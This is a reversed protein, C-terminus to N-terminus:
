YPTITYLLGAPILPDVLNRVESENTTAYVASPIHIVFNATRVFLTGGGGVTDAGHWKVSPPEDANGNVLSLYLFGNKTRLTGAPYTGPTWDTATDIDSQAVTSSTDFNPSDETQGVRFGTIIFPLNDIYIDSYQTHDADATTAWGLLGPQRFNTQYYENLACTLVIVQGNFLVRTDVGIFSPLYLDWHISPPGDPTWRAPNFVGTTAATCVYGIGGNIVFAGPAYSTGSDYAPLDATALTCEYVKQKYVVKAGLTYTGPTWQPYAAGIRYDGLFKDRLYQVPLAFAQLFGINKNGRKNPPSLEIAKTNFNIDFLGM